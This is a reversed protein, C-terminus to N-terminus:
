GPSTEPVEESTTSWIQTALYERVKLGAKFGSAYQTVEEFTYHEPIYQGAPGYSRGDAYGDEYALAGPRNLDNPDLGGLPNALCIKKTIYRPLKSVKNRESM